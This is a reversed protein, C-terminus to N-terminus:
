REANGLWTILAYIGFLSHAHDARGALQEQLLQNPVGPRLYDSHKSEITAFSAGIDAAFGQRMWSRLPSGFPAKPRYIVDHPLYAEAAKKLIYKQVRGNVEYHVRFARRLSLM